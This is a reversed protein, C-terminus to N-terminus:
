IELTMNERCFFSAPFKAQMKAELAAMQTDNFQPNHHFAALRKVKGAKALRVGAKWTSHGWGRCKPVEADTMMTDYILVDAGSVFGVMDPDPAEVLHEIDTAYVVAKGNREFRYGTCGGPHNLPQTVISVDGFAFQTGAVFGEHKIRPAMRSFVLPFFPPGFVQDLYKLASEGGLNGCYISVEVSPDFIPQFFPLGATHDHHLHSMFMNVCKVGDAALKRGLALAGTGADLVFVQDGAQLSVCPTNGGYVVTDPGSTPVSGRAGWITVSFDSMGVGRRNYVEGTVVNDTHGRHQHAFVCM